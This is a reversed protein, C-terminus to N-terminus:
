AGLRRKKGKRSKRKGIGAKPTRTVYGGTESPKKISIKVSNDDRVLFELRKGRLDLESGGEQLWDAAADLNDLYVVGEAGPDEDEPSPLVQGPQEEREPSNEGLAKPQGSGSPAEAKPLFKEELLEDVSVGYGRALRALTVDYPRSLGREIASVTHKDVGTKEEVQRLTLGREARLVRLKRALSERSM